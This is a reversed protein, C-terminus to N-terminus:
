HSASSKHAKKKHKKATKEAKKTEHGPTSQPAAFMVTTFAAAIAVALLRKMMANIRRVDQREAVPSVDGAWAIGGASDPHPLNVDTLIESAYEALSLSSM